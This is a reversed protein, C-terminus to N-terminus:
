TLEYERNQNNLDHRGATVANGETGVLQARKRSREQFM